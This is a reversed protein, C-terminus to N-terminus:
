PQQQPPPTLIQLLAVPNLITLRPYQARFSADQMLDLLDKDWTVLYDAGAAIALAIALNLYPEDDPDRPLSFLSPVNSVTRALRDLLDFTERVTEDTVRPNKARLKPRGLVDRAEDLIEDSVYLVFRGAELQRLLEAAPGALNATAQYLIMTDFVVGSLGGQSV